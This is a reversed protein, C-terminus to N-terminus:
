LWHFSLYKQSNEMIQAETNNLIDTLYGLKFTSRTSKTEDTYLEQINGKSTLEFAEADQNSFANIYQQKEEQSM